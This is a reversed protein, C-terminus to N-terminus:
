GSLGDTEKAHTYLRHNHIYTLVPGPLLSALQPNDRDHALLRRIESSAAEFAGTKVLTIPFSTPLGTMSLEFGPRTGALVTAERFIEEPRYWGTIQQINDAGMIFSFSVDPYRKKLERILLLTYGPGGIESEITSVQLSQNASLAAQLMAFRHEFATVAGDPRHPPRYSPVFLVKDLQQHSQCDRALRLHGNHVPDFLGGFIGWSAPREPSGM